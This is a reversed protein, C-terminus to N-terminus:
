FDFFADELLMVQRGNGMQGFNRGAIGVVSDLGSGDATSTRTPLFPLAFKRQAEALSLGEADEALVTFAGRPGSSGPRWFRILRTGETLRGRAAMTHPRFPPQSYGTRQAAIENAMQGSLLQGNQTGRLPQMVNRFYDSAHGLSLGGSYIMTSAALVFETYGTQPVFGAQEAALQVMSAIAVMGSYTTITHVAPGVRVLVGAAHFGIEAYASIATQYISVLRQLGMASRLASLGAMARQAQFELEHAFGQLFMGSPDVGNVPNSHAYLYKHLSQPDSVNGAFPDLRNFRGNTPDYYRARLYQLGTKDTQEGSYLLSTLAADVAQM